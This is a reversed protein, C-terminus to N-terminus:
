PAFVWVDVSPCSCEGRFCREEESEHFPVSDAVAEIGEIDEESLSLDELSIRRMLATAEDATEAAARHIYLTEEDWGEFWDPLPALPASM